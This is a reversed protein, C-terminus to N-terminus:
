PKEGQHAPRDRLKKGFHDALVFPGFVVLLVSCLVLFIPWLLVIFGSDHEQRWLTLLFLTVPMGAFWVALPWWQLLEGM